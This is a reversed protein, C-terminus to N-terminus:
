EVLGGRDVGALCPWDAFSSSCGWCISRRLAVVVALYASGSVALGDVIFVM